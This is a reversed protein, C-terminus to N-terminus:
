AALSLSPRSLSEEFDQLIEVVDETDARLVSPPPFRYRWYTAIHSLAGILNGLQLFLPPSSLLFERFGIADGKQTLGVFAEDYAGLGRAVDLLRAQIAKQLRNRAADVYDNLNPDSRDTIDLRGIEAIVPRLQKLLTDSAWKYYLFGKWAFIGARYSEGELRLTLRLPELRPDIDNVLMIEAMKRATGSAVSRGDYAREILISLETEVFQRMREQDAPAIAFYCDAPRLDRRRLHERLLFPDFSPADDLCELTQRDRELAAPSESLTELVQLWDHQGVLFSVGGYELDCPDVPIIVKTAVARQGDPQIADDPRLRHKVLLARNLLPSRFFPRTRHEPLKGHQVALGALNLVRTTSGSKELAALSRFSQSLPSASL